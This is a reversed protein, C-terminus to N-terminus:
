SLNPPATAVMALKVASPRNTPWLWCNRLVSFIMASSASAAMRKASYSQVGTTASECPRPRRFFADGPECRRGWDHSIGRCGGGSEGLIRMLRGHRWLSYRDIGHSSYIPRMAAATRGEDTFPTVCSYEFPKKRKREVAQM